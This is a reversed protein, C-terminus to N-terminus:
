EPGRRGTAGRRRGGCPDDSPRRRRRPRGVTPRHVGHGPSRPWSRGLRRPPRACWAPLGIFSRRAGQSPEQFAGQSSPRPRRQPSQVQASAAMEWPQNSPPRSPRQGCAVQFAPFSRPGQSSDGGWAQPELGSGAQIASSRCPLLATGASRGPRCSSSSWLQHQCARRSPFPVGQILRPETRSSRGVRSRQIATRPAVSGWPWRWRGGKRASRTGAGSKARGGPQHSTRRPAM